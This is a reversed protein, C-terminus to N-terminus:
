KKEQKPAANFENIKARIKRRDDSPFSNWDIVSEDVLGDEKITLVFEGDSLTVALPNIEGGNTSDTQVEPDKSETDPKPDETNPVKVGPTTRPTVPDSPTIVKPGFRDPDNINSLTLKVSKKTDKNYEHVEAGSMLLKVVASKAVSIPQVVPGMMEIPALYARSPCLILLQEEVKKPM